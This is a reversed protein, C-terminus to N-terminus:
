IASQAVMEHSIETSSTVNLLATHPILGGLAFFLTAGGSVDSIFFLVLAPAFYAEFKSM